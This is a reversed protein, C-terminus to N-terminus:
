RRITLLVAGADTGESRFSGPPLLEWSDALPQLGRAQRVGDYCLAVLVGGPTLMQAAHTIHKVDRGMKFPPNMVVAAFRPVPELDLFDRVKLTARVDGETERYLEAACEPSQEVLEVQHSPYRERIARYLRGLGASPELIAGGEPIEPLARVMRAAIEEPTQFLNFASVARPKADEGELARFRQRQEAM